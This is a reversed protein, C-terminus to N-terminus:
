VTKHRGTRRAIHPSIITANSDSPQRVDLVLLKMAVAMISDGLADLRAHPYRMEIM